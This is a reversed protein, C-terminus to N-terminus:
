VHARGIQVLRLLDGPRGTAQLELDQETITYQSSAEFHSDKTARVEVEPLVISDDPEETHGWSSWCMAAVFLSVGLIQRFM